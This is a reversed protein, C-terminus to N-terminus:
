SKPFRKGLPSTWRIWSFPSRQPDLASEAIFEEKSAFVIDFKKAVFDRAVIPAVDDASSQRKSNCQLLELLYEPSLVFSASSMSKLLDTIVNELVQRSERIQHPQVVRWQYETRRVSAVKRALKLDDLFATPHSGNIRLAVAELPLIELYRYIEKGRDNAPFRRLESLKAPHDGAMVVAAIRKVVLLPVKSLMAYDFAKSLLSKPYFALSEPSPLLQAFESEFRELM